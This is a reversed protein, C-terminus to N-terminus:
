YALSTVGRYTSPQHRLKSTVTITVDNIIMCCRRQLSVAQHPLAYMIFMCSRADRRRSQSCCCRCALALFKCFFTQLLKKAFKQLSLPRSNIASSTWIQICRSPQSPPICRRASGMPTLGNVSINAHNRGTRLIATHTHQRKLRVPYPAARYAIGRGLAILPPWTWKVHLESLASNQWQAFRVRAVVSTHIHPLSHRGLVLLPRRSWWSSGHHFENIM